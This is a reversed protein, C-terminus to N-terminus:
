ARLLMDASVRMTSAKSTPSYRIVVADALNPSTAGDPAKDVVIKGAGNPTYTVQSLETLLKNYNKCLSSISILEDKDFKAGKTIARYTKQFRTRLTWWAQAKANVFFDENSRPTDGSSGAYVEAKPDVVAGSGWYGEVRIQTRSAARRQENLTRADGRVGAGLGDADYKFRMYGHADCLSFARQTTAYIDGGKGSWEELQEVLIGRGLCLANKDKGEDAVDLAAVKEGTVAFGLKLHADVAARAWEYPILPGEISANYDIDIEQALTVPDLEESKKAYWEDDKRPDDRWYFTFVDIRGGHRKIAFPNASGNASSIDMRCNTTQSLSAEVLQPQELHAAEDVFYVGTRDGRGINNGAEGSINSQTGPFNIRMHPADRDIRWGNKFEPPLMAMFARAKHFLSKPADIKDVYEEKRSGFGISMGEYFLCLTCSLSVALWSLGGDRSKETLGPKQNKWHDMVWEVWEIQRPFPIFPILAPLGREVNRPDVTCGWDSIFDIPHLKYYGKLRALTEPNKDARLANLFQLRKRFVTPYDPNRFDFQDPTILM